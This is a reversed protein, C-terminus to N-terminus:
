RSYGKNPDAMWTFRRAHLGNLRPPTSLVMLSTRPRSSRTWSAMTKTGTQKRDCAERHSPVSLLGLRELYFGDGEYRVTFDPLKFDNPDDNSPFKQKDECSVGLSMVIDAVIIQSKSRVMLGQVCIHGGWAGDHWDLRTSLHTTM